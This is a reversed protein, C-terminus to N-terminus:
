HKRTLSDQAAQASECWAPTLLEVDVSQFAGAIRVRRDTVIHRVTVRFDGSVRRDDLSTIEVVGEAAQYASAGQKDFFQFGLQAAPAEPMGTSDAFKVAYTGTLPGSTPLQLLISGGSGQEEGLVLIMPPRACRGARAPWAKDFTVAGVATATFYGRRRAPLDPMAPLATDSTAAGAVTDGHDAMSAAGAGNNATREGCAALLLVLVLAMRNM